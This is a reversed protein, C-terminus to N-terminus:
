VLRVVKWLHSLLVCDDYMLVLTLATYALVLAPHVSTFAQVILLTHIPWNVFLELTYVLAALGRICQLLPGQPMVVRCGLYLNVLFAATSCLGYWLFMRGLVHHMIMDPFLAMWLGFCSTIAHHAFTSRSMAVGLFQCADTACYTLVFGQVAKQVEASLPENMLMARAGQAFKPDCMMCALALAKSINASVYLLRQIGLKEASAKHIGDSSSSSGDSDHDDAPGLARCCPCTKKGFRVVASVVDYVFVVLSAHFRAFRRAPVHSDLIFWAYDAMDKVHNFAYKWGYLSVQLFFALNWMGMAFWVIGMFYLPAFPIMVFMVLMQIAVFALEDNVALYFITYVVMFLVLQATLM